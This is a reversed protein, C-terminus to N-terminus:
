SIAKTRRVVEYVIAGAGIIAVGGLAAQLDGIFGSTIGCVVYALMFVVPLPYLPMSFTTPAGRRRALVAAIAVLGIFPLFGLIM